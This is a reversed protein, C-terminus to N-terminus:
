HVTKTAPEQATGHGHSAGLAASAALGFAAKREVKKALSKAGVKVGQM